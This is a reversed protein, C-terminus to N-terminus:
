AKRKRFVLLRNNAPMANDEELALGHRAALDRIDEFNRLARAPDSRRLWQDFEANSPSTHKGGYNFPGYLAFVGGPPLLAGVGAFMKEVQLWSMIHSTNASFVADASVKPFPRDVDLEIPELLRPTQAEERWLRVSPLNEAVDSPQWSLHSLEPAFYAAHQGTGSGIELVHRRDAFVRKLIALIPGRNRECADSFQKM